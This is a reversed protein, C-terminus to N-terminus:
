RIQVTLRMKKWAEEMKEREPIARVFKGGLGIFAKVTGSLLAECTEVTNLGKERPPEFGFQAAIKDLPVQEPKESIGVTRQGQV